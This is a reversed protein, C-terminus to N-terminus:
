ERTTPDATRAVRGGDDIPHLDPGAPAPAEEHAVRVVALGPEPARVALDGRGLSDLLRELPFAHGAVDGDLGDNESRPSRVFTVVVDMKWVGSSRSPM